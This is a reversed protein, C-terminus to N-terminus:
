SQPLLDEINDPLDDKDIEGKEVADAYAAYYSLIADNVDADTIEDTDSFNEVIYDTMGELIDDELEIGNETLTGNLEAKVDAKYAEDSEYDSKNLALIDNVGDKVNEYVQLAEADMNLDECMIAISISALSDVMPETRSNTRLIDIGKNIVITDGTPAILSKLLSDRTGNQLEYLVNQEGFLYYVEAITSLDTYLNDENSSEFMHLTDIVLTRYPEEIPAIEDLMSEISLAASRITASLLVATYKAHNDTRSTNTAHEILKNIQQKKLEPHIIDIDALDVADVYLEAAKVTLDKMYYKTDDLEVRTLGRYLADGGCVSVIRLVPFEAIEDLYAMDYFDNVATKTLDDVSDSTMTAKVEGSMSIIGAFPLFTVVIIILSQVAGIVAGGIRSGAGKKYSSMGIIASVIAFVIWLIFKVVLFVLCYMVPVIVLYMPLALIHSLVGPDISSIIEKVYSPYSDLNISFRETLEILSHDDFYDLALNGLLRVIFFGAVAAIIVTAIRLGSKAAGRKFGMLAGFLVSFAVYGLLIWSIMDIMNIFVGPRVVGKKIDVLM